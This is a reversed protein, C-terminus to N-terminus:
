EHNMEQALAALARRWVNKSRTGAARQAERQSYGEQYHLLLLRSYLRPIRTLAAALDARTDADLSGPHRLAEVLEDVTM